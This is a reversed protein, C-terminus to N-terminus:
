NLAIFFILSRPAKFFPLTIWFEVALFFIM